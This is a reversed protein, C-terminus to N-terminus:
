ASNSESIALARLCPLFAPNFFDSIVVAIALARLLLHSHDHPSADGDMMMLSYAEQINKELEELTGGQSFVGPVEKLRGVFWSDDVWYELSFQRFM